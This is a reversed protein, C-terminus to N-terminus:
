RCVAAITSFMEVASKGDLISHNTVFGISFGGCVFRTVQVTFVTAPSLDGFEADTRLVLRQFWPNPLSVDGLDKISLRSFCASFPM